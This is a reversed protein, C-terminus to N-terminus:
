ERAKYEIKKAIEYCSKAERFRELKEFAKSKGGYSSPDTPDIEIAKNYYSIAREYRNLFYLAYAKNKIAKLNRPDKKLTKSCHKLLEDYKRNKLLKDMMTVGRFPKSGKTSARLCKNSCHTLEPYIMHKGCSLCKKGM